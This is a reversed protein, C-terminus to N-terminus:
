CPLLDKLLTNRQNILKNYNTLNYIYFKDLQCLEADAFHRREGPGGKVLDLDEPSFLVVNMLGLIDAAKKVKELDSDIFDLLSIGMTITRVDLNEREIMENTESVENINIM